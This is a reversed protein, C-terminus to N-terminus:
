KFLGPTKSDSSIEQRTIIHQQAVPEAPAVEAKSKTSADLADIKQNFEDTVDKMNRRFQDAQNELGAIVQVYDHRWETSEAKMVRNDTEIKDISSKISGLEGEMQALSNKEEILMDAAAVKAKQIEEAAQAMDEKQGSIFNKQDTLQQTVDKLQEKVSDMEKAQAKMDNKAEELDSAQQQYATYLRADFAALGVCVALVVAMKMLKTLLDLRAPKM